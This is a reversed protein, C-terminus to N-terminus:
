HPSSADSMAVPAVAKIASGIGFDGTRPDTGTLDDSTTTYFGAIMGIFVDDKSFLMLAIFKAEIRILEVLSDLQRSGLHRRRFQNRM